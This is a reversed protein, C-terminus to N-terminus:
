CFIMSTRQFPEDLHSITSKIARPHFYWLDSIKAETFQFWTLRRSVPIPNNEHEESSNEFATYLPSKFTRIIWMKWCLLNNTFSWFQFAYVQLHNLYYNVNIFCAQNVANLKIIAMNANKESFRKIQEWAERKNRMVYEPVSIANAYIKCRPALKYQSDSGLM